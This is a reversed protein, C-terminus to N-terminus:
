PPCECADWSFAVSIDLLNLFDYYEILCDESLV